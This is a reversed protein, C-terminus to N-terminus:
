RRASPNAAFCTDTGEQCIVVYTQRENCGAVGVTYEVRTLGSVWPGQVAPQIYDRSLVTATAAPCNLDFRGRQLATQVAGDQRAQLQKQQMACGALAVLAVVTLIKVMLEERAFTEGTALGLAM